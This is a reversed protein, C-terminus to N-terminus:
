QVAIRKPPVDDIRRLRKYGRHTRRFAVPGGYPWERVSDSDKGTVTDVTLWDGDDSTIKCRYWEGFQGVLWVEKGIEHKTHRLTKM